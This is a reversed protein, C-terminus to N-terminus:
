CYAVKLNQKPNSEFANWQETKQTTTTQAGIWVSQLKCDTIKKLNELILSHETTPRFPKM